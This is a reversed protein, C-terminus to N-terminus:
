TREGAELAVLGGVAVHEETARGLDSADDLKCTCTTQDADHAQGAAALAADRARAQKGRDLFPRQAAPGLLIAAHEDRRALVEALLEREKPSEPGDALAVARMASLLLRAHAPAVDFLFM